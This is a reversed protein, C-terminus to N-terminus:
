YEMLRKLKEQDKISCFLFKDQKRTEILGANKLIEIHRFVTSQDKKVYKAIHCICKCNNKILYEIIKLRTQDGLASFLKSKQESTM